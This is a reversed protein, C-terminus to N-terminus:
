KTSPAAAKAARALRQYHEWSHWEERDRYREAIWMNAPDLTNRLSYGWEQLVQSEDIWESESYLALLDFMALARYIAGSREQDGAIAVADSPDKITYLHRRGEAADPKILEEHIRIFLDRKDRRQAHFYNVVGLMLAAVALLASCLALWDRLEWSRLWDPATVLILM